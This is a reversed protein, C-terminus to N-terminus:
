ELAHEYCQAAQLAGDSTLLAAAHRPLASLAASALVSHYASEAQMADTYATCLNGVTGDSNTQIELVIYQKDM